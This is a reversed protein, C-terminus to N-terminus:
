APPPSYGPPSEPAGPTSPSANFVPPVLVVGADKHKKRKAKSERDGSNGGRARSRFRSTFNAVAAAERAVEEQKSLGTPSTPSTVPVPSRRMPQLSGLTMSSGTAVNTSSEPISEEVLTHSGSFVTRATHVTDRRMPKYEGSGSGSARVGGYSSPGGVDSPPHAYTSVSVHKQDDDGNTADSNMTRRNSRWFNRVTTFPSISSPPRSYTSVSAHREVAPPPNPPLARPKSAAVAPREDSHSPRLPEPAPPEPLTIVPRRNPRLIPTTTSISGSTSTGGITTPPNSPRLDTPGDTTTTVPPTKRGIHAYASQEPISPMTATPSPAPPEPLRRNPALRNPVLPVPVSETTTTVISEKEKISTAEVTTSISRADPQNRLKLRQKESLPAGKPKRRHSRTSGVVTHQTTTDDDDSTVSRMESPRSQASPRGDYPVIQQSEVHNPKVIRTKRRIWILAVVVVAILALGGLVGGVIAGIPVEDDAPTSVINVNSGGTLTPPPTSQAITSPTFTGDVDGTPRAPEPFAAGHVWLRTLVLPMTSPLGLNTVILTHHGREVTTSFLVVNRNTTGGSLAPVTFNNQAGGDMQWQATGATRPQGSPTSGIWTIGSGYFRIRVAAKDATMRGIGALDQWGTSYEVASDRIGLELDVDDTDVRFTSTSAPVFMFRDFALSSFGSRFSVTLTHLGETINVENGTSRSNPTTLEGGPGWACLDFNNMPSTSSFDAPNQPPITQGDVTCTWRPTQTRLDIYGTVRGASGEFMVSFDTVGSGQMMSGGFMRGHNGANDWVDGTIPTWGSSYDILESTQDVIIYRPSTNATTM